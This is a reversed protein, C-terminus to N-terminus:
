MYVVTRISSKFKIFYIASSIIINLIKILLNVMVWSSPSSPPLLPVVVHMSIEKRMAKALLVLLLNM